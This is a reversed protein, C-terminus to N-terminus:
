PAAVRGAGASGMNVLIANALARHGNLVAQRGTAGSLMARAVEPRTELLMRAIQDMVSPPMGKAENALKAVADVAAQIPRGRLLNMMVGPDFKSMEAADALNDATKSGGLATNATEFMRQERAVRNGLREAQGPSAFAPFEQGTKGTMLPRAKNTSPAVASSEVRAIFPDAYGARFAQREDPSMAQFQRINDAARTRGSTAGTGQEVADIVRSQTRFTDNAARYAPSAAELATDLQENIRSLIRVQNGRGARQAAGIMDGIDQKARLVSNFDTLNSRGDTLMARVRRVVGELSDDAINSGPNVIRNVGPTLVDNAAAIAGSVDVPGAGQRAANYNVNAAAARQGTLSAARQAATDSADFGEAIFQALREGQGMQRDTLTDVVTQRMDSPNRAVTSLMRQGSHGMADAVNFVGQDDASARSLMNAIDDASQGSRRVGEAMARGAYDAPRLRAMLPTIFPQAAAQVGAIAYPAALGAVGGTVAGLGAGRIRSEADTGSGAGQLAGLALGDAASGAAVRGLGQGARAANAGLSLGARTLGVGGVVGGGLQGGLRYGFRNESDAADTRRQSALEKDYDGLYGFGTNLGAAIEDATGFTLTDAAGRMATDIKGLVSNRGDDMPKDFSRTIASLESATQQAVPSTSVADPFKTAILSKIQEPPMDDPFGVVTGDPMRVQPM